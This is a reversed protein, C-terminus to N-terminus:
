VLNCIVNHDTIHAINGQKNYTNIVIGNVKQNEVTKQELETRDGFLNSAGLDLQIQSHM